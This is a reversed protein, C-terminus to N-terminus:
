RKDGKNVWEIDVTWDYQSRERWVRFADQVLGSAEDASIKNVRALHAKAFPLRGKIQALGIHKCEHCAPCLSTLGVLKAVHKEDDYEWKEHCEVPHERGTGGCIECTYESRRYTEKRLTDWQDPSLLSRLNRFWATRPVLDITLRLAQSMPHDGNPQYSFPNAVSIAQTVQTALTM